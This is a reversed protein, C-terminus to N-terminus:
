TKPKKGILPPWLMPAEAEADTLGELAYELNIEKLISQNSRRATWPIRSLRRWYWLEFTDIQIAFRNYYHNVCSLNVKFFFFFMFSPCVVQSQVLSDIIGNCLFDCM